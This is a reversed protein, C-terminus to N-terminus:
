ARAAPVAQASHAPRRFRPGDFFDPVPLRDRRTEFFETRLADAEAGRNSSRLSAVSASVLVDVDCHTLLVRADRALQDVAEKPIRKGFYLRSLIANALLQARPRLQREKLNAWVVSLPAPSPVDGVGLLLAGRLREGDLTAQYEVDRNLPEALTALDLWRQFDEASGAQLSSLLGEIVAGVCRSSLNANRAVVFAEAHLRCAEEYLGAIRHARGAYSLARSHRGRDRAAAACEVLRRSHRVAAELDGCTVNYIVQCRLFADANDDETLGAEDISRRIDRLLATEALDAGLIMAVAAAHLRESPPLGDDSLTALTGAVLPHWEVATRRVIEVSSVGLDRIMTRASEVDLPPAALARLTSQGQLNNGSTAALDMLQRLIGRGNDHERTAQAIELVQEFLHSMGDQHVAPVVGAAMAAADDHAGSMLLHHACAVLLVPDSSMGPDALLDSVIARHLVSRATPSLTGLVAETILGHRVRPVREGGALFLHRELADLARVLRLAPWGTLRQLRESTARGDLAAVFPLVAQADDPLLAARRRITDALTRAQAETSREDALLSVLEEAFLPLGGSIAACRARAWPSATLGRREFLADVLSATAADDLPALRLVLADEVRSVDVETDRTALAVMVRATRVIRSLRELCDWVQPGAQDLNEIALLVPREHAVACLLDGVAVAVLSAELDDHGECARRCLELSERAAGLAGPLRLVDRAIAGWLSLPRLFGSPEVARQVVRHGLRSAIGCAERLLRSKGIGGGGLIVCVGGALSTTRRILAGVAAVEATRGQLPVEGGTLDTTATRRLWRSMLGRATPQDPVGDAMSGRDLADLIAAARTTDGRQEHVAALAAAAHRNLPDMRHLATAVAEIRTWHPLGALNALAEDLARRIAAQEADRVDEVWRSFARSFSPAYGALVGLALREIEAPEATSLGRARLVHADITIRSPDLAIESGSPGPELGLRRLRYLLQRLSQRSADHKAKPWLDGALTERSVSCRDALGIRLLAAFLLGRGPELRETGVSIVPPGLVRIEIRPQHM